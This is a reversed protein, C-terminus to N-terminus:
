AEHAEISITVPEKRAEAAHILAMINQLCDACNGIRDASYRARGVLICGETNESTNGGHIRIGSFNPVNALLPLIKKFRNSMTLSIKYEGAPIATQGDIKVGKPRVVDELAYGMFVPMQGTKELFLRGPTSKATSQDRMLIFRM